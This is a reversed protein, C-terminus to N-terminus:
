AWFSPVGHFCVGNGKAWAGRGGGLLWAGSDSGVCGFSFRWDVPRMEYVCWALYVVVRAMGVWVRRHFVDYTEM